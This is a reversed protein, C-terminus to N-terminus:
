LKEGDFDVTKHSLIVTGDKKIVANGEVNKEMSDILDSVYARAVAEKMAHHSLNKTLHRVEEM